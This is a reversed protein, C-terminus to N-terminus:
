KRRQRRFAQLVTKAQTLRQLKRNRFRLAQIDDQDPQTGRVERLRREMEFAIKELDSITMQAFTRENVQVYGDAVDRAM